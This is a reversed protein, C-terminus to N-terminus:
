SYSNKQFIRSKKLQTMLTLSLNLPTWTTQTLLLSHISAQLKHLNPHKNQLYIWSKQPYIRKRIYKLIRLRATKAQLQFNKKNTVTEAATTPFKISLIDIRNTIQIMRLILLITFQVTRAAILLKRISKTTFNTSWTFKLLLSNQRLTIKPCYCIALKKMWCQQGTKNKFVLM